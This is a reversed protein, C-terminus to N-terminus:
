VILLEVDVGIAVADDLGLVEEDLLPWFDEAGCLAEDVFPLEDDFLVEGDLLWEGEFPLEDVFLLEDVLLWEGDFLM